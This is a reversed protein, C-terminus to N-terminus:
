TVPKSARFILVCGIVHTEVEEFEAQLAKAFTEQSDERCDFVGLRHYIWMLSSGFWNHGGENDLGPRGLITAGFLVGTEELHNKVMAFIRAKRIAPGPLCHLLYMLSISDFRAPTGDELVLPLPNLADAVVCKTREPCAIQHAAADLSHTNLDVLTIRELKTSNKMANAPFYGTGVGIDLHKKGVNANFFPELVSTTPCCWAFRNSINLVWFDYLPLSFPTYWSAAAHTNGQQSM